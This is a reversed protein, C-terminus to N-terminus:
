YLRNYIHASDIGRYIEFGLYWTLTEYLSNLENLKLKPPSVGGYKRMYLVIETDTIPWPYEGSIIHPTLMDLLVYYAPDIFLDWIGELAYQKECLSFLKKVDHGKGKGILNKIKSNGGKATLIGKLLNEISAGILHVYIEYISIEDTTIDKENSLQDECEIHHRLIEAAKGVQLGKQYWANPSTYSKRLNELIKQLEDSLKVREYHYYYLLEIIEDKSDTDKVDQKMREECHDLLKVLVKDFTVGMKGKLEELRNYTGEQVPVSKKGNMM